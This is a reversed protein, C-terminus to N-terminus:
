TGGGIPSQLLMHRCRLKRTAICRLRLHAPRRQVLPRRGAREDLASDQSDHPCEHPSPGPTPARLRAAPGAGVVGRPTRALARLAAARRSDPAPRARHEPARRVLAQLRAIASANDAFVIAQMGLAQAAEAYAPVDDLFVAERPHVRLRECALRYIRHDPKMVGAEHSYVIADCIDELGYAAQERERAGVFSNSIIGTRFQPRLAAFYAALQDNLTGLYETWADDMLEGLQAPGLGLLNAIRREVQELTLAGVSGAAWTDAIRRELEGSPLGLHREWHRQWGTRPTDKLVGGLDFIVARIKSLKPQGREL